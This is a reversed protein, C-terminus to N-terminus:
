RCARAGPRVPGRRRRGLYQRLAAHRQHRKRDKVEYGNSSYFSNMDDFYGYGGYLFSTHYGHRRLVAGLTALNDNGPRRVVSETPIPPMSVTIAELGRVTRTGSAYTHRFWLAQQAYRDFEPTWDRESGYLRSFEAGFSESSILVVNLRGLGGPRAPFERDLRGAALGTWRGGGRALQQVLLARNASPERTAYHAHYDIESTRLARFFSSPGNAALENAVRNASRGLTNTSFGAVALALVAAFVLFAPTRAAFRVAGRTGALLPVRVAWTMAGALLAGGLVVRGVPYAAWLDGAVETPYILYDVSVLNFRADFEEFFYYETVASFLM